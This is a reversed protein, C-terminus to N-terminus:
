VQGANDGSKLLTRQDGAGGIGLISPVREGLEGLIARISKGSALGGVLRQHAFENEAPELFLLNLCEVGDRFLNEQIQLGFAHGFEGSSMSWSASFIERRGSAWPMWAQGDTVVLRGPEM